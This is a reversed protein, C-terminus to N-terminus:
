AMVVAKVVAGVGVNVPGIETPEVRVATVPVHAGAGSAKAYWHFRFPTAIMEAVEFDKVRVAASTPLLIVTVTVALLDPYVRVALVLVPRVATEPSNEV